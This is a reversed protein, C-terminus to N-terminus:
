LKKQPPATPGQVGQFDCSFAYRMQRGDGGAYRFSVSGLGDFYVVFDFFGLDAFFVRFVKPILVKPAKKDGSASQFM